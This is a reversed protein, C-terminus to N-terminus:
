QKVSIKSFFSFFAHRQNKESYNTIIHVDIGSTEIEKLTYMINSMFLRIDNIDTKIFVNINLDEIWIEHRILQKVCIVTCLISQVNDIKLEINQKM